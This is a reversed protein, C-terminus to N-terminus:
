GRRGGGKKKGAMKNWAAIAARRTRRSPGEVGCWSWGHGRVTRANTCAVWVGYPDMVTARAGCYPCRALTETTKTERGM